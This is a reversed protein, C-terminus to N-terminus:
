GMRALRHKLKLPQQYAIAEPSTQALAGGPYAETPLLSPIQGRLPLSLLSGHCDVVLRDAILGNVAEDIEHRDARIGHTRLLRYLQRTPVQAECCLLIKRKLGELLHKPATSCARTDVVLLHGDSLEQQILIPRFARQFLLNWQEIAHLLPPAAQSRYSGHLRQPTECTEFSYALQALLDDNLPYIHRYAQIPQLRLGFEDAQSHYPSFRHFQIPILSSPPQLHHLLPVLELIQELWEDREGPFGTLINWSVRIGLERCWKLIQINTAATCGKRLERLADDHLSEIGPQIWCIGVREMLVLQSRTLNAKVEFFLRRGGASQDERCSLLDEIFVPSLINDVFGFGLGSYRTGLYALERLLRESSKRRFGMGEGNLGCFRCHVKAGWWCGRSAEIPLGPNVLGHWPMKELAEFYDDFDPLPIRDLDTVTSRSPTLPQSRCDPGFVGEPLLKQPVPAPAQRCILRCAEGFVLDGEGSMVYDLWPFARLNAMGMEAECNAGGIVTVIGPQRAKIQRLLALSATHQQFTSSCSVIKPQLLLIEDALEDIFTKALRRIELLEPGPEIRALPSSRIFEFFAEPDDKAEPFALSGFTWEGLLTFHEYSVAEYNYIGLTEAFRLNPYLVCSSLGSECLASKLLGLALSPSEIRAYPLLPLCVDVM